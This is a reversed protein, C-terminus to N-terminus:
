TEPTLQNGTEPTFRRLSARTVKTEWTIQSFGAMSCFDDEQPEMIGHKKEMTRERLENASIPLLKM